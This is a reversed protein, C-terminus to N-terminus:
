ASPNDLYKGRLLVYVAVVQNAFGHSMAVHRQIVPFRCRQLGECLPVECGMRGCKVGKQLGEDGRVRWIRDRQTSMM